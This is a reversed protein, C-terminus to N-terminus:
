SIYSHWLRLYRDPQVAIRADVVDEGYDVGGVLRVQVDNADGGGWSICVEFVGGSICEVNEVVDSPLLDRDECAAVGLDLSFHLCGLDNVSVVSQSSALYLGGRHFCGGGISESVHVCPDHSLALRDDPDVQSGHGVETQQQHSKRLHLALDLLYYHHSSGDLLSVDSRCGLEVDVAVRTGEFSNEDQFVLDRQNHHREFGSVEEDSSLLGLVFYFFKGFM